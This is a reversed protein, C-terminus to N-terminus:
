QLEKPRAIRPFRGNEVANDDKGKTPGICNIEFPINGGIARGTM